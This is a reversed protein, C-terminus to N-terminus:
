SEYHKGKILNAMYRIFRTPHFECYKVTWECRDCLPYASFDVNFHANCFEKIAAGHWIEALTQESTNGVIVEANWDYCCVTVRGDALITLNNYPFLSCPVRFKAGNRKDCVLERNFENFNLKKIYFSDGDKLYPKWIAKFDRIESQTESMVIIQLRVRPRSVGMRERLLFFQKVNEVITSFEGTVRVRSYTERTAGDVAFIVEDLGCRLLAERKEADLLTCNTSFEVKPVGYEKLSNVMRFIGPHMLPEGYLHLSVRDLHTRNRGLEEGIRNFLSEDMHQIKRDMQERPCMICRLNCANTVEIDLHNPFPPFTDHARRFRRTFHYALAKAIVRSNRIYLKM